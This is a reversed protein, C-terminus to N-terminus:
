KVSVVVPASVNGTIDVACVGVEPDPGTFNMPLSARATEADVTLADEPCTADATSGTIRVVQFAEIGSGDDYFDTWAVQM